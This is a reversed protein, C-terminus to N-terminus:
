ARTGPAPAGTASRAATVFAHVRDVSKRGPASEVGSSVDVVDPALLGIARAVNGADLGGAVVLHLQRPLEARVSAVAAWDFAVGAGGSGAPTWGDLLLGDAAGSWAQAAAQLGAADRVAIAKWVRAGTQRVREALRPAENGHLQVVALRLRDIATLVDSEEPDVFVGVRAAHSAALIVEAAGANQSRTRGPALIVGVYDAGAEDALAADAASCIGCIKVRPANM